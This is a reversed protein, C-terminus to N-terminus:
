LRRPKLGQPRGRWVRQRSREIRLIMQGRNMLSADDDGADTEEAGDAVGGFGDPLGQEGALTSDAANGSEVGGGKGALDGSFNAVEIGELEDLFFFYFLHAAEDV